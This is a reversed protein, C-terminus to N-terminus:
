FLKQAVERRADENGHMEKIGSMARQLWEDAIARHADHRQDVRQTASIGSTDCRAANGNQATITSQSVDIPM